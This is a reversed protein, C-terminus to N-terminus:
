LRHGAVGSRRWFLDGASGRHAACFGSDTALDAGVLQLGPLYADRFYAQWVCLHSFDYGSVDLGLALLLNLLNGGTYGPTLPATHRLTTLLWEIQTALHTKGVQALLREAM